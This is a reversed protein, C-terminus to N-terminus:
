IIKYFNIITFNHKNLFINLFHLVLVKLPFCVITFCTKKM